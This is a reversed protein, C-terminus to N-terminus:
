CILTERTKLYYVKDPHPYYAKKYAGAPISPLNPPTDPQARRPMTRTHAKIPPIRFGRQISVTETVPQIVCSVREKNFVSLVSKHFIITSSAWKEM